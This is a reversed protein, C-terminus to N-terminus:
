QIFSLAKLSEIVVKQRKALDKPFDDKSAKKIDMNMAFTYINKDKEVWGVFWGITNLDDNLVFWGTKGYLNYNKSNDILIINSVDEQIKKSYPLERNALKTLFEVQQVASIKLSSDLWFTDIHDGITKNGYNIKELNILMQEKGIRRALEQYALVNSVKIADKLNSDHKWSELFVEQGQYKFFVEDVSKVAGVSLGILSNAIKFTSAPSYQINARKYNYGTFIKSQNNYIVITGSINEKKFINEIIKDNDFTLSYLNKSILLLLLLLLLPTKINLM